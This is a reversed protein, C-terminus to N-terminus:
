SLKTINVIRYGRIRPDDLKIKRIAGRGKWDGNSDWYWLYNNADSFLAVGVHGAASMRFVIIAGVEWTQSNIRTNKALGQIENRSVGLFNRVAVVCQGQKTGVLSEAKKTLAISKQKQEDEYAIRAIEATQVKIAESDPPLTSSTGKQPVLVFSLGLVLVILFKM